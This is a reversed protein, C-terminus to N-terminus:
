REDVAIVAPVERLREAFLETEDDMLAVTCTVSAYPVGDLVDVVFEHVHYGCTTLADGIRLVGAMGGTTVIEHRRLSRPQWGTRRPFHDLVTM